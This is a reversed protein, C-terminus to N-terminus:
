KINYVDVGGVGFQVMVIVGVGEVGTNSNVGVGRGM